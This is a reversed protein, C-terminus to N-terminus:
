EVIKIELNINVGTKDKVNKKVFNILSYMEDFTANNKNVFFNSHKKSICADGFNINKPVSAKILEWAKKTTQDIPNKFTSGGTKIKSPQSNNKKIKLEEMLNKIKNKNSLNGEFTASLFILKENLDIKRYKFKIKNSPIIKINGNTDICQLSILKDKFETGFCGSNM